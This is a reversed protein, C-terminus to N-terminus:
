HDSQVYWLVRSLSSSTDIRSLIQLTILGAQSVKIKYMCNPPLIAAMTKKALGGMAEIEELSSSVRTTKPSIYTPAM